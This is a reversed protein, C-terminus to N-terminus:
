AKLESLLPGILSLVMHVRSVRKGQFNDSICGLVANIAHLTRHRELSRFVKKEKHNRKNLNINPFRPFLFSITRLATQNIFYSKEIRKIYM